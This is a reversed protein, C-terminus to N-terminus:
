PRRHQHRQFARWCHKNRYAARKHRDAVTELLKRRLIKNV